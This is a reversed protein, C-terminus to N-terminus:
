SISDGFGHLTALPQFGKVECAVGDSWWLLEGPWPWTQPGLTRGPERGAGTASGVKMRRFPPQNSWLFRELDPPSEEARARYSLGGQEYVLMSHLPDPMPGSVYFVVVETPSPCVAVAPEFGARAPMPPEFALRSAVEPPHVTESPPYEDRPASAVPRRMADPWWYAGLVDGDETAYLWVENAVIATQRQLEEPYPVGGPYVVGRSSLFRGGVELRWLGSTRVPRHGTHREVDTASAPVCGLLMKPGRAV